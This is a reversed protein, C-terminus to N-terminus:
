HRDLFALVAANTAAPHTRFMGHSAQPIFTRQRDKVCEQFADFMQRYRFPSVEGNMLLTPMTLRAGEDCTTQPRGVDGIITWANDRRVQRSEETSSAWAGPGTTFDAYEALGLDIEGALLRQQLKKRAATGGAADSAGEPTKPLLGELGSADALVLTRLLDPRWKAVHLGVNGGRSHAVLHVKGADLGVIFSVVDEAHQEISFDDGKGDWKEPYFHRLSLAIVRYRKSLPDMQAAWSRYDSLSGHVLIVPVGSGREVYRLDYGNVRMTKVDATAAQSPASASSLPLATCGLITATLLRQIFRRPDARRDPTAGLATRM